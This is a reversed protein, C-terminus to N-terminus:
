QQTFRKLRTALERLYMSTTVSGLVDNDSVDKHDLLAKLDASNRSDSEIKPIRMKIEQSIEDARVLVNKYEPWYTSAVALLDQKQRRKLRATEAPSFKHYALTDATMLYAQGRANAWRTSVDDLQDAITIALGALWESDAYKFKNSENKQPPRSPASKPPLLTHPTDSKASKNSKNIYDGIESVTPIHVEEKLKQGLWVSMFGAGMLVMIYIPIQVKSSLGELAHSRRLGVGFFIGCVALVPTFYALGVLGSITCIAALSLPQEVALVIRGWIKKFARWFQYDMLCLSILAESLLLVCGILVGM